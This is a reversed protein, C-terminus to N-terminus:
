WRREFREPRALAVALDHHCGDDLRSRAPQPDPEISRLYYTRSGRRVLGEMRVRAGEPLRELSEVMAPPGTVLLNPRLPALDDLVDKGDLSTEPGVTRAEDVGFYRQVGERGYFGLSLATFGEKRAAESTDHVTGELQLLIPPSVSPWPPQQAVALALTAALAISSTHKM